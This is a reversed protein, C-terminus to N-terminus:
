FPRRQTEDLLLFDQGGLVLGGVRERDQGAHGGERGSGGVRVRVRGRTDPGRAVM